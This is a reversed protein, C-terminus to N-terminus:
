GGTLLEGLATIAKTQLPQAVHLYGQTTLVTSHGMITRIVEPDVDLELLLTATTHRAAKLDVDPVGARALVAHWARNDDGPPIPLGNPRTWVLDFPRPELNTARDALWIRLPEPIPILRRGKRSKPRTLTLAGHLQTHPYGRPVALERSPCDGARARGCGAGWPNIKCGHRYPLKQLQWALDVTGRELDVRDWTLGLLEGQRGATLLAAAWRSGLRDDVVSMLVRRAQEASLVGADEDGLRPADTRRHPPNTILGEREADVLAKGLVRHAKLATSAALGARDMALHMSRVHHPALEDLRIRGISPVIHRRITTRYGQVTRPKNRPTAIEEVWRELWAAVTLTRDPAGLGADHRAQAERLKRLAGQQSKSYVPRRLRVGTPSYGLEVTGVFLGDSKRQYLGGEGRQRRRKDTVM